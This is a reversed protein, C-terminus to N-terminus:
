RVDDISLEPPGDLERVDTWANGSGARWLRAACLECEGSQGYGPAGIDARYRARQARCTPCTIAPDHSALARDKEHARQRQERERDNDITM